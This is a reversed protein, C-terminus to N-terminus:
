MKATALAVHLCMLQPALKRRFADVDKEITFGWQLKRGARVLKRRKRAGNGDREGEGEEAAGNELSQYKKLKRLFDDLVGKCGAAALRVSDSQDPPVDKLVSELVGIERSVLDNYAAGAENARRLSSLTTRLLKSVALLDGISIGFSM